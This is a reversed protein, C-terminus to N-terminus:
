QFWNKVPSGNIAVLITRRISGIVITFLPKRRVINTLKFLGYVKHKCFFRVGAMNNRPVNAAM